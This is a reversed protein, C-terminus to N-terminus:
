ELGLFICCEALLRTLLLGDPGVGYEVRADLIDASNVGTSDVCNLNSNSNSDVRGWVDVQDGFAM